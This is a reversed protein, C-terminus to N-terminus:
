CPTGVKAYTIDVGLMVPRHGYSRRIIDVNGGLRAINMRKGKLIKQTFIAVERFIM